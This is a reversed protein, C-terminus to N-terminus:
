MELTAGFWAAYASYQGLDVSGIAPRDIADIFDVNTIQSLAARLHGEDPVVVDLVFQVRAPRPADEDRRASPDSDTYPDVPADGLVFVVAKRERWAVYQLMQEGDNTHTVVKFFLSDAM